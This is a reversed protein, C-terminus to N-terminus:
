NDNINQQLIKGNELKFINDGKKLLNKDHSIIIVIKNKKLLNLNNIINNSIKNDLASTPEDLVIVSRDFYIARAIVIRQKQGGSIMSGYEGIYTDEKKPLSDIFDMLGSLHIASDFKSKSFNSDIEGFCINEKITGDILSNNQSVYSFNQFIEKINIKHQDINNYKLSGTNFNQLGMIIDVLTSKGSGSKGYIFNVTGISIEMTINKLVPEISNSYRFSLNNISITKIKFEENQDAFSHEFKIKNNNKIEILENKISEYSSINSNIQLFTAYINQLIPLLKFGAVIYIAFVPLLEQFSLSQFNILSIALLIISITFFEIVYKPFLRLFALTAYANSYLINEQNFKSKFMPKKNYLIVEKLNNFGNSMWKFMKIQSQTIQIGYKKVKSKVFFFTLFYSLGFFVICFITAEYNFKFLSILIIIGLIIKSVFILFSMLITESIRKIEIGVKETQESINKKLSFNWNKSLYYNFLKSRLIQGVRQSLFSFLYLNSLAIFTGCFYLIFIFFAIKSVTEQFNEFELFNFVKSFIGDSLVINSSNLIEVFFGISFIIIVEFIGSLITLFFLLVLSLKFKFDFFNILEFIKNFM